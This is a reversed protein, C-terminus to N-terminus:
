WYLGNWLATYKILYRKYDACNDVIWKWTKSILAPLLHAIFHCNSCNIAVLLDKIVCCTFSRRRIPIICDFLYKFLFEFRRLLLLATYFTSLQIKSNTATSFGYFVKHCKWSHLWEHFPNNCHCSEINREVTAIAKILVDAINKKWKDIQQM